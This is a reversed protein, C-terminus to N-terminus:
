AHQGVFIEDKQTGKEKVCMKGGDRPEVSWDQVASLRPNIMSDWLIEEGM